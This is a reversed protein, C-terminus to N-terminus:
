RSLWRLADKHIKGDNPRGGVNDMQNLLNSRQTVERALQILSDTQPRGTLPMAALKKLDNIKISSSFFGGKLANFNQLMLQALQKDDQYKLPNDSGVVANIDQRTFRGDLQGTSGSRDLGQMLDPRRLIERALRINQDVALNGTLPRSAMNELGRQTIHQTGRDRFADFNALLQEALQDNSRRSYQPDPRGFVPGCNGPDPTPPKGIGPRCPEPDPKPPKGIGPRHCHGPNPRAPSFWGKMKRLLGQHQAATGLLSADNQPSLLSPTGGFGRPTMPGQLLPQQGRFVPGFTNEPTNFSVVGPQQGTTPGPSTQAGTKAKPDAPATSDHTSATTQNSVSVSM